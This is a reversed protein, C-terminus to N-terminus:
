GKLEVQIAGNIHFGAVTPDARFGLQAPAINATNSGTLSLGVGAANTAGFRSGVGIANGQTGSGILISGGNNGFSSPTATLLAFDVPAGGAGTTRGMGRSLQ